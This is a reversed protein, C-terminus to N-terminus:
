RTSDWLRHHVNMDGALIYNLYKHLKNYIKTLSDDKHRGAEKKDQQIQNYVNVITYYKNISIAVVDEFSLDPILYIDHHQLLSKSIFTLARSPHNPEVKKGQLVDM